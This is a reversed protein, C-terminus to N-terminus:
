QSTMMRQAWSRVTVYGTSGTAM